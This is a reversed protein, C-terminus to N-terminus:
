SNGKHNIKAKFGIADIANIVQNLDFSGKISATATPLDVTAEEVGEVARIAKEASARCHNCHMGEITITAETSTTCDCADCCCDDKKKKFFRLIM